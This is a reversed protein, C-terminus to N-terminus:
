QLVPSTTFGAAPRLVSCLLWDSCLAPGCLECALVSLALWSPICQVKHCWTYWSISHMIDTYWSSSQHVCFCTNKYTTILCLCSVHLLLNQKQEVTFTRTWFSMLVLDTLTVSLQTLECTSVYRLFMLASTSLVMMNCGTNYHLTHLSSHSCGPEVTPRHVLHPGEAVESLGASRTM